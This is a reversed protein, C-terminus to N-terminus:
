PYDVGLKLAMQTRLFVTGSTNAVDTLRNSYRFMAYNTTVMQIASKKDAESAQGMSSTLDTLWQKRSVRDLTGDDNVTEQASVTLEEVTPM